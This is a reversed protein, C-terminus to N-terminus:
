GRRQKGTDLRTPKDIVDDNLEELVATIFTKPIDSKGHSRSSSSKNRSRRKQRRSVEPIEEQVENDEGVENVTNEESLESSGQMELQQHARSGEMTKKTKHMQTSSEKEDM